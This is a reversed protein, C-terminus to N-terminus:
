RKQPLSKSKIEDEIQDICEQLECTGDLTPNNRSRVTVKGEESERKGLIIM